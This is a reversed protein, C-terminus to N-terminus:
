RRSRGGGRNINRSGGGGGGGGGSRNFNRSGSSGRNSSRSGWSGSHRQSAQSIRQSRNLSSFSTNGSRQGFGSGDRRNFSRDYSRDWQSMSQSSFRREETGVRQALNSQERNWNAVRENSSFDDKLEQRKQLGEESGWKEKAQERKQLAEESNWKEKAEERRDGFEEKKDGWRDKADEGITDLRDNLEELENGVKEIDSDIDEAKNRWYDKNDDWYDDNAYWYYDDYYHHHHWAMSSYLMFYMTQNIMMYSMFDQSPMGYVVTQGKPDVYYGYNNYVNTVNGMQDKSVPDNPNPLDNEKAYADAAEQLQKLTEPDEDLRNTWAQAAEEHQGSITKGLRKIVQTIAEKDKKYIEGLITTVVIHKNMIRVIEIYEELKEIAEKTEEPYEALKKEFEEEKLLTNQNILVVLEPHQSLELLAGQIDEPYLLIGYFSSRAAQRLSEFEDTASKRLYLQEPTMQSMQAFGFTPSLTLTIALFYLGITKLM